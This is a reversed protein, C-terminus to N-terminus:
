RAGTLTRGRDSDLLLERWSARSDASRVELPGSETRVFRVVGAADAQLVLAGGLTVLAGSDPSGDPRLLTFSDAPWAPTDAPALERALAVFLAYAEARLAGPALLREESAPDDVRRSSAYLAVASVQSLAYKASEGTALSDAVGLESCTRALAQAWRRGGGSSFYYGAIPTAAAHGIRLYREARFREAVQVRELESVAADANRTLVVSAGAARLMAALTRAVELNLTAARTGSRGMGAADDGGGEPDLAIRRGRLAHAALPVFRPPWTSDAGWLRWGPLQPLLADGSDSPVTVFGDRSIWSLRQEDRLPRDEPMAAAWGTRVSASATADLPIRALATIERTEGMTRVFAKLVDRKFARTARLYFWAEGGAAFVTTDVPAVGHAAAVRLHVPQVVSVPLGDEDRLRVRLARPEEGNWTGGGVLEPELTVLPKAVTFTLRGARAAGGAALRAGLVLEHMGNALPERPRVFVRGEALTVDASQGDIRADVVDCAGRIHGAIEPIGSRVTAMSGPVANTVTLSDLVPRPRAFWRAVGLYIAEAELQRAEPTVLRAEVDPNTLYSAETLLAPADSNRVVSFNGPLLKHTEIGLNRVMARHVDTGLDYSPGEDGLKYYTQTENVDHRGGPDANHHVSVFLDPAFANAIRARETLDLKLTSDSSTLFDRDRDRTMLVIAGEAALLDRLRLAVGLNVDAEALGNVGRSGRFYGGHGPDIVIRRSRLAAREAASPLSDRRAVYGAVPRGSPTLAPPTALAAAAPRAPPPAPAAGPTRAT